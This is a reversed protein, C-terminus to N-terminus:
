IRLEMRPALLREPVETERMFRVLRRHLESAVDMHTGLVNDHQNPDADLNYLQSVGPLPSYLLSWAGSTVTTVPPETLTRLLNDVSHVPDGPNAFPLSSVVYERGPLSPDRMGPALSRGQVFEPIEVGLLDLVTPMVDIASSMGKYTGPPIGPARILLPLHVIEEYLPSYSWQSGPEDYPRLTGDPYKDSSMKGFLGGHEGFYFGHDTTFIVVTRDALRM